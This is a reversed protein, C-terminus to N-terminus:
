LGGGVGVVVGGGRKLRKTVVIMSDKGEFMKM